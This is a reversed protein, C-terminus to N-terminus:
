EITKIGESIRSPREKFDRIIFYKLCVFTFILQYEQCELVSLKPKIFM